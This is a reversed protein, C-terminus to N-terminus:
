EHSRRRFQVILRAGGPLAQDFLLLIQDLQEGADDVTGDLVTVKARVEVWGLEGVFGVPDQEHEVVV